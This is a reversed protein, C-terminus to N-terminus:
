KKEFQKHYITENLEKEQDPTLISDWLPPQEIDKLACSCSLCATKLSLVCGCSGCSESGKMVAKESTGTADYFGCQNSRCIGLRKEGEAKIQDTNNIYTNYFGEAIQSRNKWATSLIEKLNM